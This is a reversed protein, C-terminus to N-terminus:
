VWESQVLGACCHGTVSTGRVLLCLRLSSWKDVDRLNKLRGTPCLFWLSSWWKYQDDADSQIQGLRPDFGPGRHKYTLPNGM